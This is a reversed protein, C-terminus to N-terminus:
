RAKADSLEAKTGALQEKLLEIVSPLFSRSSNPTTGVIDVALM